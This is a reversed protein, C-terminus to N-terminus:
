TPVSLWDQVWQESSQTYSGSGENHWLGNNDFNCCWESSTTHNNLVVAIGRDTLRQIVRDFVELPLLGRFEPNAAVAADPVPRKDHLMQNSFTLRVSNFGWDEFRDILQDLPKQDLGKLVQQDHHFGYWNASRLKYRVGERDVIYRGATSLPVRPGEAAQVLGSWLLMGSIMRVLLRCAARM